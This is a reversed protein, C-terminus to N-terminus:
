KSREWLQDANTFAIMQEVVDGDIKGYWDKPSKTLSILEKQCMVLDAAGALAQHVQGSLIGGGLNRYYMHSEYGNSEFHTRVSSLWGVREKPDDPGQKASVKYQVDAIVDEHKVETKKGISRRESRKTFTMYALERGGSAAFDLKRGIDAFLELRPTFRYEKDFPRGKKDASRVTYTSQEASSQRRLQRCLFNEIDSRTISHAVEIVCRYSGDDYQKVPVRVVVHASRSGREADNGSIERGTLKLTDVVSFSRKSQDIFEFLLIAYRWPAKDQFRIDRLWLFDYGKGRKIRDDEGKEVDKATEQLGFFEIAWNKQHRKEIIALAEAAPVMPPKHEEPAHSTSFSVIRNLLVFRQHEEEAMWIERLLDNPFIVCSLSAAFTLNTGMVAIWRNVNEAQV